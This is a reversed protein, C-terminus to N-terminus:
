NVGRHVGLVLDHQLHADPCLLGLGQQLEKDLQFIGLLEAMRRYRANLRGRLALRQKAVLHVHVIDLLKLKTRAPMGGNRRSFRAEIFSGRTLTRAASPASSSSFITAASIRNLGQPPEASSRSRRTAMM